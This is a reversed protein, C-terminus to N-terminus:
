RQDWADSSIGIGREIAKRWSYEPVIKSSAYRGLQSHHITKGKDNKIRSAIARLTSAQLIKSLGRAGRNLATCTAPKARKKPQRMLAVLIPCIHGM